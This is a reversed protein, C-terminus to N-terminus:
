ARHRRFLLFQFRADSGQVCLTRQKAAGHDVGRQCRQLGPECQQSAGGHRGGFGRLCEFLDADQEEVHHARGRQGLVEVGFGGARHHVVRQRAARRHHLGVTALDQLVGTVADQGGETGVLRTFVIGFAGHVAPQRQEFEAAHQTCFHQGRVAVSAEVHAHADVGAGHQQAAPHVSVAADAADRDVDGRTQLLGRRGARQSDAVVGVGLHTAQELDLRLRRQGDLTHICRHLAPEYM